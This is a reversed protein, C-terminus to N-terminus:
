WPAPRRERGAGGAGNRGGRGAGRWRGGPRGDRDRRVLRVALGLSGDIVEAVVAKGHLVGGDDAGIEPQDLRDGPPESDSTRGNGTERAARPETQEEAQDEADEGVGVPQADDGRNEDARRPTRYEARDRVGGGAALAVERRPARQLRPLVGDRGLRLLGVLRSVHEYLHVPARAARLLRGAPHSARSRSSESSRTPRGLSRTRRSCRGPSGNKGTWRSTTG